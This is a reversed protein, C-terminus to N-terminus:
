FDGARPNAEALERRTTAMGLAEETPFRGICRLPERSTEEDRCCIQFFMPRRRTATDETVHMVGMNMVGQSSKSVQMCALSRHCWRLIDHHLGFPLFAVLRRSIRDFDEGVEEFSVLRIPRPLYRESQWEWVTVTTPIKM